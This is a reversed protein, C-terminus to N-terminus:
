VHTAAQASSNPTAFKALWADYGGIMDAVATFGHARMVSAAVASRYGGSCYVITPRTPDLTDLHSLLQPLPILQAGPLAGGVSTEGTNRVDVIQVTDDEAIWDRVDTAPLRKASEALGPNELLVREVNDVAGVVDDFGIRAL